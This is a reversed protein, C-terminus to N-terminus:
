LLVHHTPSFDHLGSFCLYTVVSGVQVYRGNRLVSLLYLVLLRFLAKGILLVM